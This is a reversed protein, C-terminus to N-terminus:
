VASFKHPACDARAQMLRWDTATVPQAVGLRWRRGFFFMEDPGDEYSVLFDIEPASRMAEGQVIPAPSPGAVELEDTNVNENKTKM